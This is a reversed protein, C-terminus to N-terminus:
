VFSIWIKVAATKNHLLITHPSLWWYFRRMRDFLIQCHCWWIGPEYVKIMLSTRQEKLTKNNKKKKLHKTKTWIKCAKKQATLINERKGCRKIKFGCWGGVNVNGIRWFYIHIVFHVVEETQISKIIRKSTNQSTWRLSNNCATFKTVLFMGTIKYHFTEESIKMMGISCSFKSTDSEVVFSSFLKRVYITLKTQKNFASTM